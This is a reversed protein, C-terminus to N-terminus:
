LKSSSTAEALGQDLYESMGFGTMSTLLTDHLGEHSVLEYRTMGEGIYTHEGKRRSRLPIFGIVFGKMRLVVGDKDSTRVELEFEQHHRQVSPPREIGEWVEDAESGTYSTKLSASRIRLIRDPGLQIAGHSSDGITSVTFGLNDGFSGTIFRYSKTQSWYRPGWSHDRLGNGNLKLTTGEITLTGNIHSFLEYHNRAFNNTNEARAKQAEAPTLTAWYNDASYGWTSGCAIHQISLNAEVLPTNGKSYVEKPNLMAMPDILNMLRGRYVTNNKKLGQLTDVQLGGACWGNNSTIKPKKYTFLVSGNPQYLCVTMEAQGENVRNGIRVFGGLTKERDFFNYYVSENYNEEPGPRHCYDDEPRINGLIVPPESAPVKKKLQEIQAQALAAMSTTAKGYSKALTSSSQGIADRAAIGQCIIAGRWNHFARYFDWYPDPYRLSPFSSVVRSSYLAMFEDQTPIGAIEQPPAGKIGGYGFGSKLDPQYPTQYLACLYSVDNMPHGITSLEWDLVAIVKPETPHFLFNDFKFDGHIISVVDDPQYQKLSEVMIEMNTIKPVEAGVAEQRESVARLSKLQRAFYNGCQGFDQLGIARWDVLHLAALTEAVSHYAARREESTFGPLVPTGFNRGPIFEMLYFHEGLVGSDTCLCIVKPVPVGTHEGLCKLIQFERDVQHAMKNSLKGPPQKRLVYSGSPSDIKYTPNSQGVGFKKVAIPGVIAPVQKALYAELNVVDLSLKAPVDVTSQGIYEVM